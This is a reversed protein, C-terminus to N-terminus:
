VEEYYIGTGFEETNWFETRFLNVTVTVGVGRVTVRETVPVVGMSEFWQAGDECIYTKNYGGYQDMPSTHVKDLQHKKFFAQKKDWYDRSTM